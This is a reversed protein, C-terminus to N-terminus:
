PPRHLHLVYLLSSFSPFSPSSPSSLASPPSSSSAHAFLSHDNDPCTDFFSQKMVGSESSFSTALPYAQSDQRREESGGKTIATTQDVTQLANRKCNIAQCFHKLRIDYACCEDDKHWETLRREVNVKM